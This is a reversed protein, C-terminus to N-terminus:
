VDEGLLGDVRGKWWQEVYRNSELVGRHAGMFGTRVASQGEQWEGLMDLMNRVSPRRM